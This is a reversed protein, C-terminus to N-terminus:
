GYRWEPTAAHCRLCYRDRVDYSESCDPCRRPVDARSIPAPIPAPVLLRRWWTNNNANRLM